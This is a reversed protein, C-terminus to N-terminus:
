STQSQKDTYSTFKKPYPIVLIHAQELAKSYDSFTPTHMFKVKDCHTKIYDKGTILLELEFGKAISREITAILHEGNNKKTLSGSFLIRLKTIEFPRRCTIIEPFSGPPVVLTNTWKLKKQDIHYSQYCNTHFITLDFAYVVKNLLTWLLLQFVGVNCGNLEAAHEIPPDMNDVVTFINARLRLLHLLLLSMFYDPLHKIGTFSHPFDLMVVPCRGNVLSHKITILLAHFLSLKKKECGKEKCRILAHESVNYWFAFGNDTLVSKCMNSYLGFYRHTLGDRVDGINWAFKNAVVIMSLKM